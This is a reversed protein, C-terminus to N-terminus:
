KIFSTVNGSKLISSALYWKQPYKADKLCSYLPFVKKTEETVM